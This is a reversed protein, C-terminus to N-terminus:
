NKKFFLTLEAVTIGFKKMKARNILYTDNLLYLRDDLKFTYEAGKVPLKLVYQMAAANGATKGRMEGIVDAATGKFEGNELLELNWLREQKAGDSYTFEESLTGTKGKWKGVMKVHFRSVVTGSYDEVIGWAEVNGNLYEQIKLTPKEEKYVSVDPACGFLAVLVGMLIITKLMWLAHINTVCWTTRRATASALGRNNNLAKYHNPSNQKM